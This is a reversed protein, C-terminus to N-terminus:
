CVGREWEQAWTGKKSHPLLAELDNVLHRMRMTIGRSPLVLVRQKNRRVKGGPTSHDADEPARKKGSAAERKLAANYM